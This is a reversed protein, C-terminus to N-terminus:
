IVSLVLTVEIQLSSCLGLKVRGDDVPIEKKAAVSYIGMM